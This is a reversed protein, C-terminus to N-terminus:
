EQTRGTTMDLKVKQIRGWRPQIYKWSKEQQPIRLPLMWVITRKSYAMFMFSYEEREPMSNPSNVWIQEVGLWDTGPKTKNSWEALLGLVCNLLHLWQTALVGPITMDKPFHSFHVISIYHMPNVIMWHATFDAKEVRFYFDFVDFHHSLSKLHPQFYHFIM